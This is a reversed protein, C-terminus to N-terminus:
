VTVVVVLFLELYWAVQREQKALAITGARVEHRGINIKNSNNGEIKLLTRNNNNIRKATVIVVLDNFNPLTRSSCEDRPLRGQRAWLHAPCYRVLVLLLYMCCSEVVWYEAVWWESGSLRFVETPHTSSFGLLRNDSISHDELNLQQSPLLYGSRDNPHTSMGYRNCGFIPHITRTCSVKWM